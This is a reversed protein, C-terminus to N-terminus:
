PTSEADAPRRPRRRITPTFPAEDLTPRQTDEESLVASVARVEALLAEEGAELVDDSAAAEAAELADATADDTPATDFLSPAEWQPDPMESPEKYPLMPQRYYFAIVLHEDDRIRGLLATVADDYELELAIDLGPDEGVKKPRKLTFKSIRANLELFPMQRHFRSGDDTAVAPLVASVADVPADTEPSESAGDEEATQDASTEADTPVDSEATKPDTTTTTPDSTIETM